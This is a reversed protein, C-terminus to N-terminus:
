KYQMSHHTYLISGPVKGQNGNLHDQCVERCPPKYSSYPSVGPTISHQVFKSSWAQFNNELTEGDKDMGLSNYIQFEVKFSLNWLIFTVAEPRLITAHLLLTGSDLIM